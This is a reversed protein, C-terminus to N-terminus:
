GPPAPAAPVGYSMGFFRLVGAILGGAVNGTQESMPAGTIETCTPPDDKCIKTTAQGVNVGAGHPGAYVVCGLSLWLALLIAGLQASKRTAASM